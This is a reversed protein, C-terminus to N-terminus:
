PTNSGSQAIMLCYGDPDSLFFEGEPLYVPYRIESPLLGQDLLEQRLAVLQAAYFYLTLGEPPKIVTSESKRLMLNPGTRWNEVRPSYLWAWGMTGSAPDRNGIEFGLKRYFAASAEVDSVEIMTVLGSLPATNPMEM